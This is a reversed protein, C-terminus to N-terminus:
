EGKQNDRLWGSDVVSFLVAIDSFSCEHVCVITKFEVVFITVKREKEIGPCLYNRLNM